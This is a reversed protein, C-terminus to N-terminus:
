ESFSPYNPPNQIIEKLEFNDGDYRWEMMFKDMLYLPGICFDQNMVKLYIRLKVGSINDTHAGGLAYGMPGNISYDQRWTDHSDYLVTETAGDYLCVSDVRVITSGGSGGAGPELELFDFFGGDYEDVIFSALDGAGDVINDLGSFAIDLLSFSTSVTYYYWKRGSLELYVSYFDAETETKSYFIRGFFDFVGFSTTIKYNPNWFTGPVEDIRSWASETWQGLLDDAETIEPLDFFGVDQELSDMTIQAAVPAYDSKSCVIRYSGYPIDDLTFDGSSDSTTGIVTGELEVYVNGPSTNGSLSGRPTPTLGIEYPNDQGGVVNLTGVAEEYGFANISYTYDGRMVENLALGSEDGQADYRYGGEDAELEVRVRNPAPHLPGNDVYDEFTLTVTGPPELEFYTSSPNPVTVVPTESPYGRRSVKFEYTGAPLRTTVEGNIDSEFLIVVDKIVGDATQINHLTTIVQAYQIPDYSVKDRVTWIYEDAGEPYIPTRGPYRMSTEVHNNGSWYGNSLELTVAPLATLYAPTPIDFFELEQSEGPELADVPQEYQIGNHTLTVAAATSSAEGRNFVKARFAVEADLTAYDPSQLLHPISVVLDPQGEPFDYAMHRCYLRQYLSEAVSYFLTTRRGDTFVSPHLATYRNEQSVAMPQVLLKGSLNFAAYYFRRPSAGPWAIRVVNRNDLKVSHYSYGDGDDAVQVVLGNVEVERKITCDPNLLFFRYTYDGTRSPLSVLLGEPTDLLQYAEGRGVDGFQSSLDVYLERTGDLAWRTMCTYGPSYFNSYLIYLRDLGADYHAAFYNPYSPTKPEVEWIVEEGSDTYVGAWISGYSFVVFATRGDATRAAWLSKFDQNYRDLEKMVSLSCLIKGNRDFRYDHLIAPKSISGGDKETTLVQVGGEDRPVIAFRYSDASDDARTVTTLLFPPIVTIGELNTKLLYLYEDGYQAYAIWYGDDVQVIRCQRLEEDYGDYTLPIPHSLTTDKWGAASAALIAPMYLLIDDDDDCFAPQGPILITATLLSLFILITVTKTLQFAKKTKKCFSLAISM